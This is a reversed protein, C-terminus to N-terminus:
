EDSSWTLIFDPWVRYALRFSARRPTRTEYADVYGASHVAFPLLHLHRIFDVEKEDVMKFLTEKACWGILLYDTEQRSPQRAGEPRPYEEEASLFRHRIKYVRESRYEIDIGAAPRTQLLVAAYGRTHSFSVEWPANDPLYPAGSDRYAVTLERGALTKLLVRCALWERRRGSSQWRALQPRYADSHDLLALLEEESEEIKWVGVLPATQKLFLPM